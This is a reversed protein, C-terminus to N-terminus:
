KKPVSQSETRGMLKILLGKDTIAKLRRNHDNLDQNFQRNASTYVENLSCLSLFGVIGTLIAHGYKGEVLFEVSGFSTAGTILGALGSYGVAKKAVKTAKEQTSDILEVEAESNENSIKPLVRTYLEQTDAPFANGIVTDIDENTATLYHDTEFTAVRESGSNIKVTVSVTRGVLNSDSDIRNKGRDVDITTPIAICGQISEINNAM